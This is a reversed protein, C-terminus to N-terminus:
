CKIKFPDEISHWSFFRWGKLKDPTRNPLWTIRIEVHFDAQRQPQRFHAKWVQRKRIVHVLLWHLVWWNAWIQWKSSCFRCYVIVSTPKCKNQAKVYVNSLILKRHWSEEINRFMEKSKLCVFLCAGQIPGRNHSWPPTKSRKSIEPRQVTLFHQHLMNNILYKNNLVCMRLLKWM